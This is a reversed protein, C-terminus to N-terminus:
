ILKAAKLGDAERAAVLRGQFSALEKAFSDPTGEIRVATNVALALPMTQPLPRNTEDDVLGKLRHARSRLAVFRSSSVVGDVFTPSGAPQALQM